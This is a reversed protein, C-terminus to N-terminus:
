AGPEGLTAGRVKAWTSALHVVWPATRGKVRAETLAQLLSPADNEHWPVEAYAGAIESLTHADSGAGTLKGHRDALAEALQNLRGPHLRANFVEIVDVLPALEEAYKGGKGKGGAFPHPLYVIGGQQHIRECVERAPTGKPIVESLFLGVVDIGEATKVEEGPIISDPFESAMELAVEIRTPTM